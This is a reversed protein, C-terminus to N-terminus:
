GTIETPPEHDQLSSGHLRVALIVVRMGQDLGDMPYPSATTGTASAAPDNHAPSIVVTSKEAPLHEDLAQKYRICAQRDVAVQFAKYDM